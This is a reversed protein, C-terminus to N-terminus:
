RFSREAEDCGHRLGLIMNPLTAGEPDEPHANMAEEMIEAVKRAESVLLAHETGAFSVLIAAEGVESSGVRIEIDVDNPARHFADLFTMVRHKTSAPFEKGLSKAKRREHRNM